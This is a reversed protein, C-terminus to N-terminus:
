LMGFPVFSLSPVLWLSQPSIALVTLVYGLSHPTRPEVHFPPEFASLISSIYYTLLIHVSFHARSKVICHDSTDKLFFSPLLFRSPIPMLSFPLCPVLLPHRSLM